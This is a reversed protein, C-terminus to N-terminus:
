HGSRYSDVAAANQEFQLRCSLAWDCNIAVFSLFVVLEHRMLNSWWSFISQKSKFFWCFIAFHKFLCCTNYVAHNRGNLTFHLLVNKLKFIARRRSVSSISPLALSVCDFSSNTRNIIVYNSLRTGSNMNLNECSGISLCDIQDFQWSTRLAVSTV